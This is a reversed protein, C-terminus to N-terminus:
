CLFNEIETTKQNYKENQTFVLIGGDQTVDYAGLLAVAWLRYRMKYFM